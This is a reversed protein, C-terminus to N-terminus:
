NKIRNARHKDNQLNDNRVEVYKEEHKLIGYSFLLM